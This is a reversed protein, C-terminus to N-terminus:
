TFLIKFLNSRWPWPWSRHKQSRNTRLLGNIFIYELISYNCQSNDLKHVKLLKKKYKKLQGWHTSWEFVLVSLYYTYYTWLVRYPTGIYSSWWTWHCCCTNECQTMGHWILWYNCSLFGVVESKTSVIVM